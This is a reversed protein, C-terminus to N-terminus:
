RSVREGSELAIGARDTDEFYTQIKNNLHIPIGLEKTAYDYVIEHLEGRHGNFNPATEDYQPTKQNLVIEGTDYKHINFGYSRLDISYERMKQAVVGKNWRYFIRGANPGFSIIDGLAKLEPFAEYIEVEHGNRHCEIAAGL